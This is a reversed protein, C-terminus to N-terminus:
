CNESTENTVKLQGGQLLCIFHLVITLFFILAFMLQFLGPVRVGGWPLNTKMETLKPNSSFSTSGMRVRNFSISWVTSKLKLYRSVVGLWWFCM